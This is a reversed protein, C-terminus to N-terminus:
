IRILSIHNNHNKQFIEEFFKDVNKYKMIIQIRNRKNGILEVCNLKQKNKIKM